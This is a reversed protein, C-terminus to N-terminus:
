NVKNIKNPQDIVTKLLDLAKTAEEDTVKIHEHPCNSYCKGLIQSKICLNNRKPFLNGSYVNAAKCIHALKPLRQMSTFPLMAAKIKPHYTADRNVLVFTETPTETKIKKNENKTDDIPPRKKPDSVDMYLATPVEGHYVPQKSKIAQIMLAFEPLFANEGIMKGNAFHRSQLHVIWLISAISRKTTSKIATDNYNELAEVINEISILMPCTDGFAPLLLNGFRQLRTILKQFTPTTTAKIKTATIDKVTTSTATALADTLENKSDVEAETLCPVAFPTLGKAASYLSSMSTEGEWTRMVLMTLLSHLPMVKAGKWQVESELANRAIAIKDVKQLNKENLQHWM